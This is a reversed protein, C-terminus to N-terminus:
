GGPLEELRLLPAGRLISVVQRPTTGVRRGGKTGTTRTVVQGNVLELVLIGKKLRSGSYQSLDFLFVEAREGARKGESVSPALLHTLRVEMLDVLRGYAEYHVEKDKFDVRYFTTTQEELCFRRLYGLTELTRDAAGTESGLDDELEQIKVQAADGAAQNVDQVGAIRANSRGRAKAIASAALNLYDRPVAGSALVLRDLAAGAFIASLQQIGVQRAYTVLIQELFRKAAKPDELAVDLDVHDADHGTQLGMPPSTQFWKTLHKISAVKLWVDVDRVCGHLMDLVLPQEDRKMYYFDDVFVYIRKQSTEVFRKLVAHVRPVLSEVVASPPPTGLYKDITEALATLEDIVRPTRPGDQYYTRLEHLLNALINLFVGHATERRLTQLNTWVALHDAGIALNKAEVMLATKGAGRRGFILHHRPASISALSTQINPVYALSPQSESTRSRSSILGALEIVRGDHVGNKLRAVKAAVASKARRVTVFARLGGIALADDVDNGVRVAPNFVSDPVTVIYIVEDPYLRQSIDLIPV